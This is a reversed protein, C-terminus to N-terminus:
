IVSPIIFQHLSSYSYFISPHITHPLDIHCISSPCHLFAPPHHITPHQIPQSLSCPHLISPHTPHHINFLNTLLYYIPTSKPQNSPNYMPRHINSALHHQISPHRISPYSPPYMSPAQPILQTLSHEKKDGTGILPARPTLVLCLGLSASRGSAHLSPLQTM